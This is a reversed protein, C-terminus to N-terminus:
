NYSELLYQHKGRSLEPYVAKYVPYKLFHGQLPGAIESNSGLFLDALGTLMSILLM